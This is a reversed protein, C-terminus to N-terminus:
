RRQRMRRKLIALYAFYGTLAAGILLELVSWVLDLGIRGEALALGIAKIGAAAILAGGVGGLMLPLPTITAAVGAIQEHLTAHEGPRRVEALVPEIKRMLYIHQGVGVAFLAAVLLAVFLGEIAPDSDPRAGFGLTFFAAILLCAALLRLVLRQRQRLCVALREKQEANVRYTRWSGLLWPSPCRFEYGGDDTAKFSAEVARDFISPM